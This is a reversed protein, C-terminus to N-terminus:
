NFFNQPSDNLGETFDNDGLLDPMKSILDGLLPEKTLFQACLLEIEKRNELFQEPRTVMKQLAAGLVSPQMMLVHFCIWGVALEAPTREWLIDSLLKSIASVEAENTENPGM